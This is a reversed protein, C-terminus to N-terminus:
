RIKKNSGFNLIEFGFLVGGYFSWEKGYRIQQNNVVRNFEDLAYAAHFFMSTPFLYYSNLQLRVEAGLGKKSNILKLFKEMGRM